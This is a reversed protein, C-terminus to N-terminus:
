HECITKLPAALMGPAFRRVLASDLHFYALHFTDANVAGQLLAAARNLEDPAVAEWRLEDGAYLYRGQWYGSHRRQYRNPGIRRYASTDALVAEDMDTILRIMQGNRFLAAWQFIPLAFDLPLPYVSGGALYDATTALNLISNTEAWNSLEGMNYCMLLCRDVPPTGTEAPRQYQHLRLTTSLATRAPLLPRLARLLGFYREQTASTWDCDLQVEAAPWQPALEQMKAVLRRALEPIDAMPLAAMTRHTIFAVPIAEVGPPLLGFAYGGPELPALPIAEGTAEHLDVDFLRLYIRSVGLRQIVETEPPSLAFRTQWHYFAPLARREPQPQCGALGLWVAISLSTIRLM